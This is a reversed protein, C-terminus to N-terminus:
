SLKALPIDYWGTFVKIIGQGTGVQPKQGAIFYQDIGLLQDLPVLFDAYDRSAMHDLDICFGQSNERFMDRWAGITKPSKEVARVHLRQIASLHCIENNLMAAAYDNGTRALAALVLLGEYQKIALADLIPTEISNLMGTYFDGLMYLHVTKRVWPISLFRLLKDAIVLADGSATLIAVTSKIGPGITLPDIESINM